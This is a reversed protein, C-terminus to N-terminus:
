KLMNKIFEMILSNALDDENKVASNDGFRQERLRKYENILEQKSSQKLEEEDILM